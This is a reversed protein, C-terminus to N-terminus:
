QERSNRRLHQRTGLGEGLLRYVEWHYISPWAASSYVYNYAEADAKTLALVRGGQWFTYEGHPQLIIIPRSGRNSFDLSLDVDCDIYTDSRGCRIALAKGTLFLDKPKSEKARATERKWRYVLGSGTKCSACDTGGGAFSESFRPTKAKWKGDEKRFEFNTGAKKCFNGKSLWVEVFKRRIKVDSLEYYESTQKEEEYSLRQFRIGPFEVLWEANTRPSLRIILPSENQSAALEREFLLSLIEKRDANTLVTQYAFSTSTHASVFLVSMFFVGAFVGHVTNM